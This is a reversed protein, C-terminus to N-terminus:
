AKVAETATRQLTALKADMEAGWQVHMLERAISFAANYEESKLGARRTCEVISRALEIIRDDTSM